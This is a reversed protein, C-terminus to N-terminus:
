EVVEPKREVSEGEKVEVQKETSEQKKEKPEGEKAEVHKKEVKAEPMEIGLDELDFSRKFRSGGRASINEGLGLKLWADWMTEVPQKSGLGALKALEKLGHTGDSNQYVLKKADTDLVDKLTSKVEKMATFKIWKLIESLLRTQESDDNSM